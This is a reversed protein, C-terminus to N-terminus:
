ETFVLEINNLVKARQATIESSLRDLKNQRINIAAPSTSSEVILSESIINQKEIRQHIAIKLCGAMDSLLSETDSNSGASALRILADLGTVVNQGFTTSIVLFGNNAARLMARACASTRIEGIYLISRGGVPQSRLAEQISEAWPDSNDIEDPITNQTCFGQPAAPDNPNSVYWGNLPMEPPDEITYAFGGFHTLRSVVTASATTTKGSGPSGVILILGGTSLAPSMLLKVLSRPLPSILANLTPAREPMRRIRYWEGDMAHQGFRVRYRTMNYTIMFDHRSQEQCLRLMSEIHDIIDDTVLRPGPFVVSSSPSQVSIHYDTIEDIDIM